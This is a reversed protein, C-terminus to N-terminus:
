PIVTHLVLTRWATKTRSGLTRAKLNNFLELAQRLQQGMTRHPVLLARFLLFFLHKRRTYAQSTSPSGNPKRRCQKADQHSRAEAKSCGVPPRASHDRWSAYASNSCRRTWPKSQHVLTPSRSILINMLSFFVCKIYISFKGGVQRHANGGQVMAVSSGGKRLSPTTNLPAPSWAQRQGSASSKKSPPPMPFWPLCRVLACQINLRFRWPLIPSRSTAAYYMRVQFHGFLSRLIKKNSLRHFAFSLIM